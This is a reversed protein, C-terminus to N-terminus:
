VRERCSARGIQIAQELILFIDGRESSHSATDQIETIAQRAAASLLGRHGRSAILQAGTLAAIFLLMPLTAALILSLPHDAGIGDFADALIWLILVNLLATAVLIMWRRVPDVNREGLSTNDPPINALEQASSKPKM